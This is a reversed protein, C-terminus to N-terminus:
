NEDPHNEVVIEVSDVPEANQDPTGPAPADTESMEADVTKVDDPAANDKKNPSFDPVPYEEHDLPLTAIEDDHNSKKAKKAEKKAEKKAAKAAAKENKEDAKTQEKKAEAKLESEVDTKFRSELAPAYFTMFGNMIGDVIMLLGLLISCTKVAEPPRKVLFFGGAITLISLVLLVWWAATKYEKATVATHLKFSGDIVTIAGIFFALLGVADANRKIILFIGCFLAAIAGVLGIFFKFDRKKRMLASVAAFVAYLITIVAIVLIANPLGEEPFAILLVGAVLFLLAYLMAGWGFGSLSKFIKKM